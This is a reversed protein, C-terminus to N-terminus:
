DTYGLAELAMRDEASVAKSQRPKSHKSRWKELVKALKQARGPKDAFLNRTEGPDLQLNYLEHTNEEPGLIYKWAGKRVGFRRGFVPITGGQASSEQFYKRALFVPHEADLPSEGQLAKALSRGEFIAPDLDLAALEVLTPALDVLEVPESIVRGAGIHNPWRLILPVRVEEEYLFLGHTWYGRQMLSEGHDATVAVITNEDLGADRLAALFRGIEYDTFAIEGDYLNIQQQDEKSTAPAGLADSYLFGFKGPPHYPSHPDFYHLFLFFPRSKELGELLDIALDTTADARRDFGKELAHGKWEGIVASATAVEFDDEYRAFGQAFGFKAELVFSSVVAATQYGRAGFLEALTEHGADLELGNDFLHHTAPYLGLFLSAHVPGTISMPAYATEFRVGENALADLEPTTNRSYGYSSSHDARLTDITILLVNPRKSEPNCGLAGAVVLLGLLSTLCGRSIQTEGKSDM